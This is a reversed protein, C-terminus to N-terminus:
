AFFSYVWSISCSFLVRYSCSSQQLLKYPLMCIKLHQVGSHISTQGFAPFFTSPVNRWPNYASFQQMRADYVNKHMEGDQTHLQWREFSSCLEYLLPSQCLLTWTLLFLELSILTKWASLITHSLVYNVPRFFLFNKLDPESYDSNALKLTDKSIWNTLFFLPPIVTRPM